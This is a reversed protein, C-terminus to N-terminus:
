ADPRLDLAARITSAHPTADWWSTIDKWEGITADAAQQKLDGPRGYFVTFQIVRRDRTVLVGFEQDVDDPFFDALVATQPDVEREALLARLRRFLPEDSGRLLRTSAVTVSQAM